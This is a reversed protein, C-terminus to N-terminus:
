HASLAIIKSIQARLSSNNVRFTGDSYGSIVGEQYATEIYDYYTSGEPVDTFHPGGVTNLPWGKALVLVKMAQGRTVNGNPRFTNDPYGNVVNHAYATEVYLFFPNNEPVDVFHPFAPPAILPWGQALVIMKAYQARTTNKM